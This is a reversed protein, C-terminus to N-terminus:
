PPSSVSPATPAVSTAVSGTIPSVGITPVPAASSVGLNGIETSGLPVGTQAVGGTTTPSIPTAASSAAASGSASSCIVSTSMGSPAAAAPTAGGVALGGGDYTSTSGSMTSPSTGVASCSTTSGPMAITGTVGTPAPSIGPSALETAGLPIGTPSVTSGTGLGLPSTPSLSPTAAPIGQAMAVNCFLLAPLAAAILSSRMPMRRKLRTKPALVSASWSKSWDNPALTVSIAQDDNNCEPKANDCSPIKTHVETDFHRRAQLVRTSTQEAVAVSLRAAFVPSLSRM